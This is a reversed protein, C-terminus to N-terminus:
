SIERLSTAWARTARLNARAHDLRAKEALCSTQLTAITGRLRRLTEGYKAVEHAVEPAGLSAPSGGRVCKAVQRLRQNLRELWRLAGRTGWPKGAEAATEAMFAAFEGNAVRLTELLRNDM